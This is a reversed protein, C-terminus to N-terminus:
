SRVKWAREARESAATCRLRGQVHLYRLLSRLATVENKVQGVSWRRSERLVFSTIDVPRLRKWRLRSGAPQEMVFRRAFDGYGRITSAALGRERALYGAYREVFRHVPSAVVTPRPAPVVGLGRLNELLPRLSRPSLFQTYGQSRRHRMFATAREDTIDGGGLSRDALWRSFHAAVRLLNGASLPSYGLQLLEQRFGDVYPVLPGKFRVSAPDFM